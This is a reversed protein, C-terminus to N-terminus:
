QKSAEDLIEHAQVEKEPRSNFYNDMNGFTVKNGKIFLYRVGDALRNGILYGGLKKLAKQVQESLEDNYVRVKTEKFSRPVYAPKEIYDSSLRYTDNNHVASMNTLKDWVGNCNVVELESSITRMAKKVDDDLLVFKKRIGKLYEISPPLLTDSKCSSLALYHLDRDTDIISVRDLEIDLVKYQFKSDPSKYERGVKLEMDNDKRLVGRNRPLKNKISQKLSRM